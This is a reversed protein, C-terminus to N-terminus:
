EVKSCELPIPDRTVNGAVGGISSFYKVSYPATAKEIILNSSFRHFNSCRIVGSADKSCTLESDRNNVKISATMADLDITTEICKAKEFCQISEGFVCTALFAMSIMLIKKM